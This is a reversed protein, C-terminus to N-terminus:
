LTSPSHVEIMCLREMVCDSRQFVLRAPFDWLRIAAAVRFYSPIQQRYAHFLQKFTQLVAITIQVREVGEELEMKFLEEPILYGFAQFIVSKDTTEGHKNTLKRGESGYYRKLSWTASSKCSFLWAIRRATTGRIAGSSVFRTSCLQCFM